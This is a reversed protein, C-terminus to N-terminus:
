PNQFCHRMLPIFLPLKFSIHLGKVEKEYGEPVEVEIKM